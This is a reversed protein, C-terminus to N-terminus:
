ADVIWGHCRAVGIFDEVDGAPAARGNRRSLERVIDGASRSGDCLGLVLAASDNLQAIGKPDSLVHAAQAPDWRVCLNPALRVRAADRKLNNRTSM